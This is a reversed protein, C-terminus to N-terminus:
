KYHIYIKLLEFPAKIFDKLRLQSGSIDQWAFLPYEYINKCAESTGSMKVYRALIEVDFLWKTCFPESFLPEILEAKYIKAGCQTDYVPIKLMISAVFAFVRGMIHRRTKRYVKAGLRLLRLGTIVQFNERELVTLFNPIEELPTALDADWFGINDFKGMSAAHSLGQRVAESKGGNKDLNLLLFRSNQTCMVKLVDLTNDFSGDNVFLFSIDKNTESFKLFAETNLRKEENYCPIIIATQM